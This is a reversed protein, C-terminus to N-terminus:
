LLAVLATAVMVGGVVLLSWISLPRQRATLWAQAEAMLEEGREGAVVYAAVPLWVLVAALLVYIAVLVIKDPNVLTSTSVTAAAVVTITLRKPGGVGLLTGVWFAAVPTLNALKGLLLKGRESRPGEARPKFGRHILWAVLLLLAGVALKLVWASTSEDAGFTFSGLALACVWVISEGLIFALAFIVGNPRGRGSKLM